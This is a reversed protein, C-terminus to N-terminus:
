THLFDLVATETLVAEATSHQASRAREEATQAASHYYFISHGFNTGILAAFLYSTLDLLELTGYDAPTLFRTYVPITLFSSLARAVIPIAYFGLASAFDWILNRKKLIEDSKRM